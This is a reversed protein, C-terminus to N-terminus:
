FRGVDTEEALWDEYMVINYFCGGDRTIQKVDTSFKIGLVTCIGPGWCFNMDKFFRM